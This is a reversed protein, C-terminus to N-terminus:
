DLLALGDPLPTISEGKEWKVVGLVHMQDQYEHVAQKNTCGTALTVMAKAKDVPIPVGILGAHSWAAYLTRIRNLPHRPDNARYAPM